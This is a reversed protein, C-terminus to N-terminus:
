HTLFFASDTKIVEATRGSPLRYEWVSGHVTPFASDPPIPADKLRTEIPLNKVMERLREIMPADAMMSRVLNSMTTGQSIAFVHFERHTEVPVDVTLRQITM